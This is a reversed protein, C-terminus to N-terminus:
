IAVHGHIVDTQSLFHFGCLDNKLVLIDDVSRGTLCRSPTDEGKLVARPISTGMRLATQLPTGTHSVLRQVAQFMTVHAGALSGENNVLRGNDLSITQGYLTFAPSGGVTPMADSVLFVRDPIPRARIAMGVLSDAVHHGDCIIGAYVDSNIAAGVVGPARNQIQSMANFLHTICGAGAEFASMAQEATADTHGLSVIVGIEAMERIQDLSVAEPAVTIMTTVNAQRLKHLVALSDTDMPRVLEAAHTGRRSAAIHPGEIHLGAIRPHPGLDIVADAARSIIDIEDTIVTPLIEVTGLAHHAQAIRLLGNPSPDLNLLTDGGGNVQLDTFGPCIIGAVAQKQTGAPIDSARICASVQGNRVLLATNELLDLGDFVQTPLLYHDTM